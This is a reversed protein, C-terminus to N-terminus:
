AQSDDNGNRKVDRRKHIRLKYKVHPRVHTYTTSLGIFGGSLHSIIENTIRGVVETCM